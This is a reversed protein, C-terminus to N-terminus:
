VLMNNNDIFNVRRHYIAEEFVKSVSPLFSVSRYRIIPNFIPVIKVVKLSEPFLGLTFIELNYQKSFVRVVEIPVSIDEVNDNQLTTSSLKKNKNELSLNAM